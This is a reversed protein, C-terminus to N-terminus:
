VFIFNTHTHETNTHTKRPSADTEIQTHTNVIGNVNVVLKIMRRCDSAEWLRWRINETISDEINRVLTEKKMSRM